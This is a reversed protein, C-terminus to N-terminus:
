RSAAGIMARTLRPELLWEMAHRVIPKAVILRKLSHSAFPVVFVRIRDGGAATLASDAYRYKDHSGRVIAIRVNPDIAAVAAPVSFSDPGKPEPGNLLDSASIRLHSSLGPSMAVVGVLRPARAFAATWIALEAGLSHGFIVLPLSDTGMEHRAGAIIRLIGARFASDRQPHSDPLNALFSRIDFGVVPYGQESLYAALEQHPKWFAVDNGFFFVVARAPASAAAPYFFLPLKKLEPDRPVYTPQPGSCGLTAALTLVFLRRATSVNM